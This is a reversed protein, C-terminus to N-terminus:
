GSARDFEIQLNAKSLSVRHGMWTAHDANDILMSSVARMPDLSSSTMPTRSM